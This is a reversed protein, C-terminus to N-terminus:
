PRREYINCHVTTAGTTFDHFCIRDEATGLKWHIPDPNSQFDLVVDGAGADMVCLGGADTKLPCGSRAYVKQGAGADLNPCQIDLDLGTRGWSRTGADNTTFCKISTGSVTAIRNGPVSAIAVTAAVLFLGLALKKMM